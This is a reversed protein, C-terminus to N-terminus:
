LFYGPRCIHKGDLGDEDKTKKKSGGKPYGLKSELYAIYEDEEKEKRTRPASTSSVPGSNPGDVLKELATQKPKPRKQVPAKPPTLIPEPM